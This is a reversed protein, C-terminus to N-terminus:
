GVLDQARKRIEDKDTRKKREDELDKLTQVEEATLNSGEKKARTAQPPATSLILFPIWAGEEFRECAMVVHGNAKLNKSLKRAEEITKCDVEEGEQLTPLVKEAAKLLKAM